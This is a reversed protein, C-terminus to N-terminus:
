GSKRESLPLLSFPSVRLRVCSGLEEGSYPPLSSTRAAEARKTDENAAALQFTVLQEEFIREATLAELQRSARTSHPAALETENESRDATRLALELLERLDDSLTDLRQARGLAVHLASAYSLGHETSELGAAQRLIHRVAAPGAAERARVREFGELKKGLSWLSALLPKFAARRGADSSYLDLHDPGCVIALPVGCTRARCLWHEVESPSLELVARLSNPASSLAISLVHLSRGAAAM